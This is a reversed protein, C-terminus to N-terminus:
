TGAKRTVSFMSLSPGGKNEWGGIRRDKQDPVHMYSYMVRTFVTCGCYSIYRNAPTGLAVGHCGLGRNNIESRAVSTYQSVM